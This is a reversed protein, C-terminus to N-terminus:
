WGLYNPSTRTGPARAPHSARQARETVSDRAIPRTRTQFALLDLQVNKPLFVRNDLKQELAVAAPLTEHRQASSHQEFLSASTM